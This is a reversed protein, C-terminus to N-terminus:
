KTIYYKEVIYSFGNKDVYKVNNEKNEVRYSLAVYFQGKSDNWQPNLYRDRLKSWVKDKYYIYKNDENIIGNKDPQPYDKDIVTKNLEEYTRIDLTQKEKKKRPKNKKRFEKIHVSKGNEVVGILECIDDVVYKNNYYYFRQWKQKETNKDYPNKFYSM